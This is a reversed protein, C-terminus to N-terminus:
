KKKWKKVGYNQNKRLIEEVPQEKNTVMSFFLSLFIINFLLFITIAVKAQKSFM